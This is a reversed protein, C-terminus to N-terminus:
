ETYGAGDEEMISPDAICREIRDLTEIWGYHYTTFGKPFQPCPGLEIYGDRDVRSTCGLTRKLKLFAARAPTVRPDRYEERRKAAAALHPAPVAVPRAARVVGRREHKDRVQKAASEVSGKKPRWRVHMTRFGAVLYHAAEEGMCFRVLDLYISAYKWGHAAVEPGHMRRCISHAVEHLVIYQTRSWLPMKIYNADGCANRRGRGDHVRIDRKLYAGYRRRIPARALCKNLYAVIEPITEVRQSYSELIKEARYLKTKQTDREKTTM